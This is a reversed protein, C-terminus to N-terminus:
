DLKGFALIDTDYINNHLLEQYTEYALLKHQERLVWAQFHENM